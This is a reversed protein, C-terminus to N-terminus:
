KKNILSDCFKACEIDLETIGGVQHTSWTINVKNYVNEWNPHHDLRESNLAIRSMFGFAENFDKFIFEKQLTNSNEDSKWGNNLILYNVKDILDTM